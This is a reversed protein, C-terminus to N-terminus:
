RPRGRGELIQDDSYNSFSQQLAALMDVDRAILGSAEKETNPAFRLLSNLRYLIEENGTLGEAKRGFAYYTNVILNTIDRTMEAYMRLVAVWWGSGVFDALNIRPNEKAELAALYEQYQLHGLGWNGDEHQVLVNNNQVLEKAFQDAENWSRIEGMKQMIFRIVSEWPVARATLTHLHFSFKRLFFLKDRSVFLDRKIGKAADWNHLLLEFRREYVELLSTPLGHGFLKVVAFITAVLPTSVVEYLHPNQELHSIIEEASILDDKFWLRFFTQTQQPTFPLLQLNIFKNSRAMAAWPRATFICQVNQNDVMFQAIERNIVDVRAAAEDVGDLLVILRGSQLLETFSKISGALGHNKCARQILSILTRKATLTTLPIFIPIRGTQDSAEKHGLMRLLTTKGAGAHGTIQCNLRSELLTEIRISVRDIQSKRETVPRLALSASPISHNIVGEMTNVMEHFRVLDNAGHPAKLKAVNGRAVHRIKQLFIPWDVDLEAVMIRRRWQISRQRDSSEQSEDKILTIPNLGLVKESLKGFEIWRNVRSALDRAHDSIKEWKSIAERLPIKTLGSAEIGDNMIAFLRPPLVSIDLHIYIPLLSVKERIQFASAEQLFTLEQQLQKLYTAYRNGLEALIEPAKRDLLTLLTDGDVVRLRNVNAKLYKAFSAELASVELEFPSVLWARSAFGESGDKRKIVEELCQGLQNLVNHLHGIESADGSFKFKKVQIALWEPRSLEDKKTCLIDIGKEYIGHRLEITEFDMKELLPILIREIVSKESLKQLKKLLRQREPIIM